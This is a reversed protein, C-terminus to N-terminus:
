VCAPDSRRQDQQVTNRTRRAGVVLQGLALGADSPPVQRHILVEFGHAGLAERCLETLLANLFVGGSLAVETLGHRFAVTRVCALVADAVARHFRAAVVPAPVGALVDRAVAAVVPAADFEGPVTHGFRYATGDDADADRALEEFCMAAEAEYDSRHCVGALSAVADFLRGMSSTPVCALGAELQRALVRRERPECARVSPLRDDWDLGAARLHTLAMRCPNRVAADGGPLPVYRLHVAREFGTYDAVLVEGGWVAGDTGYGTGDFAVGIVPRSGDHGADAMAAAVHAHHHQVTTVPLGTRRVCAASRYGPHADVVALEPRVGVLTRLQETAATFARQTELDEMDGIHASLWARRGEGLCFTNKVDGGAALAPGVPVPLTVPLPAYGRSRRVPLVRGEVVRLVSDDCPVHVARDHGLWADALGALVERARADDTVIPEGSVNGSTMVLVAPGPEDGPLGLLLHHVPTYALVVGIDPHGPAVSPALAAGPRGPLLVVPRQPGALLNREGPGTVGLAAAADLDAVMVAFPKDGRGKRRRLRAVATEDGADCALHFGGLGKVAVVKGDALLRRAGLLAAAGSLPEASGDVGDSVHLTLTPGCDHCAITQAHFRRDAPDAYEGACRRCLPLPAMTTNPRDYPLGTIVTLRPGCHTCSIFPHRHRRDAPDRLEALCADCTAVDPPVLTRGPRGNDSGRIAFGADEGRAPREGVELTEVVALPPADTRLREVFAAVAGARGEVEVEVGGTDNRVWGRLALETALGHVFPRFGVGQVVGAVDVRVRRTGSGEACRDERAPASRDCM